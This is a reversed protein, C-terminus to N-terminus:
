TVRTWGPEAWEGKTLNWLRREIYGNIRRFKYTFQDARPAISTSIQTTNSSTISSPQANVPVTYSYLLLSSICICTIPKM